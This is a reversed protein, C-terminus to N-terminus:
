VGCSLTTLFAHAAHGASDGSAFSADALMGEAGVWDGCLFLGEQDDIIPSPRGKLGGQNTEPFHGAVTMRPLFREHFILQRWGPQAKDLSGELLARAEKETRKGLGGYLLCHIMAAGEPALKAYKSHVSIYSPEDVGLIFTKKPDPLASLALDLCTAIVPEQAGFKVKSVGALLGQAKEPPVAIIVSRALVSEGGAELEFLATKRLKTVGRSLQITGGCKEIISRLSDVLSGWGGDLYLVNGSFAKQLQELAAAACLRDPAHVYSVLRILARFFDRVREESSLTALWQSVSQGQLKAPKSTMVKMFANMGSTKERWNRFLKTTLLSLAGSPLAVFEGDVSVFNGTTQPCQGTYTVGLNKLVRAGSSKRYLAHAGLNFYFDGEQRQTRGRGGLEKSAELVLVEQGLKSLRAAATLGALGGGIVVADWIRMKNM